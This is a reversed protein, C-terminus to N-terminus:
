NNQSAKQENADEEYLYMIVPVLKKEDIIKQLKAKFFEYNYGYIEFKYSYRKKHEKNMGFYNLMASKLRIVCFSRSNQEYQLNGQSTIMNPEIAEKM